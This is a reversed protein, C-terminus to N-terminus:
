NILLWLRNRSVSSFSMFITQIGAEIIKASPIAVSSGKKGDLTLAATIFPNHVTLTQPVVIFPVKIQTNTQDADAGTLFRFVREDGDQGVIKGTLHINKSQGPALTGLRWLPSGAESPPTAATASYGFPYRGELLVNQIPAKANSTVTVDMSFPQDSIAEAPSQVSVSVPSSGIIFHVEAQKQFVSNTNPVSYQLTVVVKQESGEQGYLVANATRKVQEGAGIAGISQLEHKFPKSPDAPDRTNDPYDVSM